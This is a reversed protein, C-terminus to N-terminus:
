GLARVARRGDRGVDSNEEYRPKKIEKNPLDYLLKHKLPLLPLNRQTHKLPETM